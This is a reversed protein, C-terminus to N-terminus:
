ASMGKLDGWRLEPPGALLCTAQDTVLRERLTLKYVMTVCNGFEAKTRFLIMFHSHTHSKPQSDCVARNPLHRVADM